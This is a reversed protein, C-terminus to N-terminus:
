EFPVAEYAELANKIYNDKLYQEHSCVHDGIMMNLIDSRSVGYFEAHEDLFKLNKESIMVNIRKKM